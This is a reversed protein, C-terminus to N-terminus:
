RSIPLRVPPPLCTGFSSIAGTRVMLDDNARDARARSGSRCSSELGPDAWCHQRHASAGRSGGRTEAGTSRDGVLQIPHRTAAFFQDDQPSPGSDISAPPGVGSVGLPKAAVSHSPLTLFSAVVALAIATVIAAATTGTAPRAAGWSAGPRKMPLRAM